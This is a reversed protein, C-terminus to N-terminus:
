WAVRGEERRQAGRPKPEAVNGAADGRERLRGLERRGGVRQVGEADGEGAGLAPLLRAVGELAGREEGVERRGELQQAVNAGLQALVILGDRLVTAREIEIGREAVDVARESLEELRGAVVLLCAGGVLGGDGGSGGVSCRHQLEGEHALAGALQVVRDSRERARRREKRTVRRRPALEARDVDRAALPRRGAIGQLPADGDIRGGRGGPPIEAVGPAGQGLRLVGDVGVVLGDGEPGVEAVHVQREPLEVRLETAVAGRGAGVLGREGRAGRVELQQAGEGVEESLEPTVRVGGHEQLARGAHLGLVGLQHEGQAADAQTELSPRRGLLREGAAHLEAGVMRRRVLHERLGHPAHAIGIGREGGVRLGDGDIGGVDVPVERARREERLLAEGDLGGGCEAGRQLRLRAVGVQLEGVRAREARRAIVLLRRRGELLREGEAGFPGLGVRLDARLVDGERAEGVRHLSELVRAADVGRVGRDDAREGGGVLAQAPLDLRRGDQLARDFFIRLVAVCPETEAREPLLEALVVVRQGRQRLRGLKPRRVRRRVHRQPHHARRLPHLGLGHRGEACGQLDLWIERTRVEADGLGLLRRAPVVLRELGVALRRAPLDARDIDGGKTRDRLAMGREALVALRQGEGIARELRRGVVGRHVRQTPTRELREDAVVLGRGGERARRRELGLVGVRLQPLGLGEDRGALQVLRAADELGRHLRAGAIGLRLTQEAEDGCAHLAVRGRDLRELLRRPEGGAIGLHLAGETDAERPLAAAVLGTGREVLRDRVARLIALDVVLERQEETIQAAGVFGARLQLPGERAIRRVGGGVM